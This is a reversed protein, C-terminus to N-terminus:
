LAGRPEFDISRVGLGEAAAGRAKRPCPATSTSTDRSWGATTAATTAVTVITAQAMTSSAVTASAATRTAPPRRAADAPAGGARLPEGRRPARALPELPARAPGPAVSAAGGSGPAGDAPGAAREGGRAARPVGEAVLAPARARHGGRPVEGPRPLGRRLRLLRDGPVCGRARGPRRDHAAALAAALGTAPVAALAESAAAPQPTAWPKAAVKAVGLAVWISGTARAWPAPPATGRRSVIIAAPNASDVAVAGFIASGTAGSPSPLLDRGAPLQGCTLASV